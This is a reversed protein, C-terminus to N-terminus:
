DAALSKVLVAPNRAAVVRPPVDRAVVSGAGIVSERGKTVGKFSLGTLPVEAVIGVPM